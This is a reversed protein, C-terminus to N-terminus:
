GTVGVGDPLFADDADGLESPILRHLCSEIEPASQKKVLFLARDVDSLSARLGRDSLGLAHSLSACAVLEGIQRQSRHPPPGCDQVLASELETLVPQADSRCDSVESLMRPGQAGLASTPVYTRTCPRPFPSPSTRSALQGM